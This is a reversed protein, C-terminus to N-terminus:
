TQFSQALHSSRSSEATQDAWLHGRHLWGEYHPFCGLIPDEGGKGGQLPVVASRSRMVRRTGRPPPKMWPCLGCPSTTPWWFCPTCRSKSRHTVQSEDFRESYVYLNAMSPKYLCQDGRYVIFPSAIRDHQKNFLDEMTKGIVIISLEIWPTRTFRLERRDASIFASHTTSTRGASKKRNIPNQM